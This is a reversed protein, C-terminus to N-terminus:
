GGVLLDGLARRQSKGAHGVCPLQPDTQIPVAAITADPQAQRELLAQNAVRM